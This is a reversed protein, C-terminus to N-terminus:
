GEGKPPEMQAIRDNMEIQALILVSGLWMVAAALMVLFNLAIAIQDCQRRVDKQISQLAPRASAIVIHVRGGEAESQQRVHVLYCGRELSLFARQQEPNLRVLEDDAPLRAVMMQPLSGTILFLVFWLVLLCVSTSTLVIYLNEWTRFLLALAGTGQRRPDHEIKIALSFVIVILILNFLVSLYSTWSADSQLGGFLAVVGVVIGLIWGVRDLRNFM